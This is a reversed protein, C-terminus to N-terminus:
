GNQDVGAQEFTAMQAHLACALQLLPVTIAAGSAEGLRMQLSVLPEVNMAKLIIQHGPEASQHAFIMWDRCGPNLTIAFLAAVSCIFGDVLIPIGVQAARIYAGCLAAIEFGGLRRLIALPTTLQGQHFAHAHEIVRAKYEVGKTDLGTGAGVLKVPEIELLASALASAATTNGIGMEGGIFLQCNDLQDIVSAGQALAESLQRDCMAADNCFCATGASITRDLVGETAPLPEVTGLNVVEFSAQIQRAAVSIAAGGNAFNSIMQRTVSQPFASVGTRAVGHDAAFVTIHLAELTPCETQQMAALRVAVSELVGLSGPPKTLQKQRQLAAQQAQESLEAVPEFLWRNM